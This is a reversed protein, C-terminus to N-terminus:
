DLLSLLDEKSLEQRHKQDAWLKRFPYFYEYLSLEDPSYILFGDEIVQIKLYLPLLSFFKIDYNKPAVNIKEILLSFLEHPDEDPAVICVDIDSRSTQNEGVQSGFLLIGLVNKSKLVNLFDAKIRKLLAEKVM